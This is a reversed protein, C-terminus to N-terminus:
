RSMVPAFGLNDSNGEHWSCCDGPKAKIFDRHFAIAVEDLRNIFFPIEAVSAVGGASARDLKMMAWIATYPIPSESVWGSRAHGAALRGGM